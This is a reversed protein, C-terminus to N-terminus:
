TPWSHLENMDHRQIVYMSDIHYSLDVVVSEIFLHMPIGIGRYFESRCFTMCMFHMLRLGNAHMHACMRTIRAHIIDACTHIKTIIYFHM